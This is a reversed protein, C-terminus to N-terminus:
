LDSALRYKVVYSRGKPQLRLGSRGQDNEGRHIFGDEALLDVAHEWEVKEQINSFDIGSRPIFDNNKALLKLVAERTGDFRDADLKPKPDSDPKDKVESSSLRISQENIINELRSVEEDHKVAINRLSAEAKIAREIIKGSQEATLLEQKELENRLSINKIQQSKWYKYIWRSPYPYGFIYLLASVMPAFVGKSVIVLESPYLLTDLLHLKDALEAGSALVLVTRYNWLLWSIVFAGMFPSTARERIQQRLSSAIDEFM